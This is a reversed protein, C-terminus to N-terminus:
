RSAWGVPHRVGAPRSSQRPPPDTRRVAMERSGAAAAAGRRGPQEQKQGCQRRNQVAGAAVADLLHGPHPGAVAPQFRRARRAHPSRRALPSRRARPPRRAALVLVSHDFPKDVAAALLAACRGRGGDREKPAPRPGGQRKTAGQRCCSRGM